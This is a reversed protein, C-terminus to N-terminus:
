HCVGKKVPASDYSMKVIRRFCAHRIHSGDVSVMAEMGCRRCISNAQAAYHPQHCRWDGCTWIWGAVTAGWFILSAISWSRAGITLSARAPWEGYLLPVAQRGVERDDEVDPFDQAHVTTTIIAVTVLMWIYATSKLEAESLVRLAGCGFCTLEAENLLNTRVWLLASPLRYALQPISPASEVETLAPGTLTAAIAFVSQPFIDTKFDSRTFLFLTRLHCSFPWKDAAWTMALMFSLYLPIVHFPRNMQHTKVM